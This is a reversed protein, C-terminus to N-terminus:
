TGDLNVSIRNGNGDFTAVVRDKTGSVSKYAETQSGVGTTRGSLTALVIRMLEAATMGSELAQQWTASANDAASPVGGTLTRTPYSWIDAASSGGGGGTSFSIAQVPQQYNIRVVYSGLTNVFPDGGGDVLLIGDVVSLTHSGEKPRVRWGNLLFAYIPIKTGATTDIDNGGLQAMAPLFKSNDSTLFWDVWRSWLNRVSLTEDDSIIVRKNPGDFTLM